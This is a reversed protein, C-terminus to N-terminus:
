FLVLCFSIEETPEAFPTTGIRNQMIPLVLSFLNSISPYDSQDTFVHNTFHSLLTCSLERCKEIDDSLCTLLPKQLSEIFFMSHIPRQKKKPPANFEKVFKGLARRRTSRNPDSLCNINRQQKKTLELLENPPKTSLSAM